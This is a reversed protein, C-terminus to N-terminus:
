FRFHDPFGLMEKIFMLDDEAILYDKLYEADEDEKIVRFKVRHGYANEKYSINYVEFKIARRNKLKTIKKNEKKLSVYDSEFALLNDIEEKTCIAYVYLQKIRPDISRVKVNTQKIKQEKYSELFKKREEETDELQTLTEENITFIQSLFDKFIDVGKLGKNLQEDLNIKNM